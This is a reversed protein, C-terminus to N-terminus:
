AEECYIKVTNYECLESENIIVLGLENLYEFVDTITYLTCDLEGYIYIDYTM